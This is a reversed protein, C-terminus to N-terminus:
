DDQDTNHRTAIVGKTVRELREDDWEPHRDRLVTMVAAEDIETTVYDPAGSALRDYMPSFWGRGWASVIAVAGALAIVQLLPSSRIVLLLAALPPIQQAHSYDLIVRDHAEFANTVFGRNGPRDLMANIFISPDSMAMVRGEGIREVTMVPYTGLSETDDITGNRNTDLYAFGSTNVVPRATGPEIITGYNLTLHSVNATYPGSGVDNAVPMAESRYNHREDRVLTGNFRASAGLDALLPNSQSGFDEAVVLTGGNAVFEHVRAAEHDTYAQDPSLIFAITDNTEATPYATTNTIITSEADAEDAVDQLSSAGDWAPNYAGFATGSTSAAVILAIASSVVVLGLVARPIDIDLPNWPLSYTDDDPPKDAM